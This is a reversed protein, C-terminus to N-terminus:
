KKEKIETSGRFKYFIISRSVLNSSAVKQIAVLHEVLQAIRAPPSPSSWYFPLLRIVDCGVVRVPINSISSRGGLVSSGRGKSVDQQKMSGQM